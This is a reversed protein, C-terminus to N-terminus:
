LYYAISFWNYILLYQYNWNSHCKWLTFTFKNITIFTVCNGSFTVYIV